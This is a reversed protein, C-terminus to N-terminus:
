ILKLQQVTTGKAVLNTMLHLQDGTLKWTEMARM